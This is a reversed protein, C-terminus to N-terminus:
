PHAPFLGNTGPSIAILFKPSGMLWQTPKVAWEFNTILEKGLAWQIPLSVLVIAM